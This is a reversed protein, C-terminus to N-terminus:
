NQLDALTSIDVAVSSRVAPRAARCYRELCEDDCRLWDAPIPTLRRKEARAEFCLWGADLGASLLPRRGGIATRREDVRRREVAVMTVVAAARRRESARREALHPVVDWTQWEIGQSDTFIRYGM